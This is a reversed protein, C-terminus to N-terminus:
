HWLSSLDRGKDEHKFYVFVDECAATSTRITDACRALDDERYGEDRLRFCAYPATIEVPTSLRKSDAVYLAVGRGSLREFVNPHHWSQHRFEFAARAGPPLTTLFTGLM